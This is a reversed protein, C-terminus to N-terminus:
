VRRRVDLGSTVVPPVIAMTPIKQDAPPPSVPIAGILGCALDVYKKTANAALVARQDIASTLAVVLPGTATAKACVLQGAQVVAGVQTDAQQVQQATCGMLTGSMVLVALVALAPTGGGVPRPAPRAPQVANAANRYNQAGLKDIAFYLGRYWSSSGETPVTMWPVAFQCLNCALLYLAIMAAAQKGLGIAQLLTTVDPVAANQVSTQAMAELTLLTLWVTSVGGVVLLLYLNRRM